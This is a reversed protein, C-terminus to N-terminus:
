HMAQPLAADNDEADDMRSERNAVWYGDLGAGQTSLARWFRDSVNSASGKELKYGTWSVSSAHLDDWLTGCIAISCEQLQSGLRPILRDVPLLIDGFTTSLTTEPLVINPYFNLDLYLRVLHPLAHPLSELLKRLRDATPAATSGAFDYRADPPLKVALEVSTITDLHQRLLLRQLNEILPLSRMQFTNTTYLIEIGEVYSNRVLM